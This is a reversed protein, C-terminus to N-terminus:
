WFKLIQYIVAFINYWKIKKGEEVTRGNYNIKIEYFIKGKKVVYKLIEAQQEFGNTKLDNVNILERKFCIYCSYIDTFTTNNKLNFLNTIFLNGLKNYFNHSRSYEDYNLRSGIILDPAFKQIIKNFKIFENPDYELDADQFIVYKATSIKLGKKVSAGKGSNKKNKIIKDYLNKNGDLINTTGDTSNDDIIIVENIFNLRNDHVKKLLEVITDKENYVPIIVDVSNNM